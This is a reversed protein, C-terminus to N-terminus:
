FGSYYSPCMRVKMESVLVKCVLCIPYVYILVPILASNWLSKRVNGFFTRLDCLGVFVINVM